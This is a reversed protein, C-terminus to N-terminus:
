LTKIENYITEGVKDGFLNLSFDSKKTDFTEFAAMMKHPDSDVIEAFGNEVLEVWETEARAIICHKKNFYAEKQLGGSDTIVMKCNKLLQLMDLYGVPSIATLNHDINNEGMIKQTRPHLPIVVQYKENIAELGNFISKLNDMDDTNEQRHVTALVFNNRDLNLTGCINSKKDSIDSYLAVADKMIDGSKVIKSGFNGFGERKLNEVAADTPCLLLDSIRDVLIRNIEEPMKLNFSRLGAEIHIIKIPLKKAALAGSLTSNTDGYVVVGDPKEKILVTEIKELMRGTMAGHSLGQIGLNYKPQPIQMEDFFVESMNVDYHQGTHLLIEEMGGRTKILNSLVSAKIM